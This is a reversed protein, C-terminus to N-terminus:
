TFHFPFAIFLLHVAINKGMEEMLDFSIMKGSHKHLSYFCIKKKLFFYACFLSLVCCLGLFVFSKNLKKLRFLNKVVRGGLCAVM